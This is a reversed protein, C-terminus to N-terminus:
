IGVTFSCRASWISIEARDTTTKEDHFDESQTCVPKSLKTVKYSDINGYFLDELTTQKM